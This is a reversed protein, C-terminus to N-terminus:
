PDNPRHNEWWDKDHWEHHYDRFAAYKKGTWAESGEIHGTGQFQVGEITPDPAAAVEFHQAHWPRVVGSTGEMRGTQKWNRYQDFNRFGQGHAYDDNIEKQTRPKPPPAPQVPVTTAPGRVGQSPHGQLAPVGRSSTAGGPVVHEPGQPAANNPGGPAANKPAEPVTRKPAQAHHSANTGQKSTRNSKISRSRNTSIIWSMRKARLTPKPHPMRLISITPSTKRRRM